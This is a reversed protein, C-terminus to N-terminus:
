EIVIYMMIPRNRESIRKSNDTSNTSGHWEKMNHRKTSKYWLFRLSISLLLHYAEKSNM